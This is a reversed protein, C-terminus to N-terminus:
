EDRRRLLSPSTHKAALQTIKACNRIEYKDINQHENSHSHYMSSGYRKTHILSRVKVM